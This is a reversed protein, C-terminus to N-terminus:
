VYPTTPLTLHTYSVPPSTYAGTKLGAADLCLVLYEVVSGKGNTGGVTVIPPLADLLGALEAVRSIRELGLDIESPHLQELRQLWQQLDRPNENM